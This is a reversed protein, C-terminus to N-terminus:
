SLIYLLALILEKNKEDCLLLIVLSIIISEDKAASQYKEAKDKNM